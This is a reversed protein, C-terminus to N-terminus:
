RIIKCKPLAEQLKKAGEPTVETFSLGLLELKTFAAIDKVSADTVKTFNLNLKQLDKMGRLHKLGADTVQTSGLGLDQLQTLPALEKLGADTIKPAADLKLVRLQSFAALHKLDADTVKKGPLYVSQVPKKPNNGEHLITAGLKKLAAVAEAQDAHAVSALAVVAVVSGAWWRTKMPQGGPAVRIKMARAPGALAGVDREIAM